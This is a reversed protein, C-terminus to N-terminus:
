AAGKSVAVDPENWIEVGEIKTDGKLARVVGAIKKEDPTLYERPLKSPDKIRFKWVLKRAVGTVKPTDAQIVPAVVSMASAELNAVKAVARDETREARQELRQAALAAERAEEAARAAAAADGAERAAKAEREAQLAAQRQAEAQRREEAAKEQAKRQAEAAERQLREREIRAADDAKSQAEQRLEEQKRDWASLKGRLIDKASKLATLAPAFFADTRRCAELSPAKLEQRKKDVEDWRASARGAATAAKEYDEATAIAFNQAYVLAQQATTMATNDPMPVTVEVLNKPPAAAGAAKATNAPM